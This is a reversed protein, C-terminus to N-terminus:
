SMTLPMSFPTSISRTRSTELAPPRLPSQTCPCVPRHTVLREPRGDDGDRGRLRRAFALVLAPRLQARQELFRAALDDRDLQDGVVALQDGAAKAEIGVLLRAVQDRRGAPCAKRQVVDRGLRSAVHDVALRGPM